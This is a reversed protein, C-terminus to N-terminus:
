KKPRPPDDHIQETQLKTIEVAIVNLQRQIEALRADLSIRAAARVLEAQAETNQTYRAATEIVTIRRDMALRDEFVAFLVGGIAVILAMILQGWSVANTHWARANEGETM